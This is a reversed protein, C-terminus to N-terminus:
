FSRIGHAEQHCHICIWQLNEEVDDGGRSRFNRHHVQTGPRMECIECPEFVHELRFRKLLEPDKIRPRKKFDSTM